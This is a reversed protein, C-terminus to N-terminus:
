SPSDELADVSNLGAEVIISGPEIPSVAAVPTREATPQMVSVAASALNLQTSMTTVASTETVAGAALPADICASPSAVNPVTARIAAAADLTANAAPVQTPTEEEVGM